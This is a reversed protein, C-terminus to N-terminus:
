ERIRGSTSGHRFGGDAGEVNIEARLMRRRMANQAEHELQVALDDLTDIGMDAKEM